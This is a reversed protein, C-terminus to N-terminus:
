LGVQIPQPDGLHDSLGMLIQPIFEPVDYPFALVCASLGLVGAHRKIVREPNLDAKKNKKIKTRSLSEFQDMMEKNLSMYGCHLFGGLTVAAM